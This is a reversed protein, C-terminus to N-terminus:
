SPRSATRAQEESLGKRRYIDALEDQESEQDAELEHAELHIM